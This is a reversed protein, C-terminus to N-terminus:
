TGKSSITVENIRMASSETTGGRCTIKPTCPSSPSTGASSIYVLETNQLDIATPGGNAVEVYEDSASAGGTVVEAIVAGGSVPWGVAAAHRTGNLAFPSVGAVGLIVFGLVLISLLSRRARQM